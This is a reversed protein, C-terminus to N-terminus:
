VFQTGPRSHPDRFRLLDREWAKVHGAHASPATLPFSDHNLRLSATGCEACAYKSSFLLDENESDMFSAIALGNATSLATEFSDAVRTRMEPRVRFRDVIVEITHTQGRDLLPRGGTRHGPWRNESSCLRKPGIRAISTSSQRKERAGRARSDYHPNM